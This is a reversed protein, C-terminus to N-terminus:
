RKEVVKSGLLKLAKMVMSAMRMAPIRSDATITPIRKMGKLVLDSRESRSLVPM